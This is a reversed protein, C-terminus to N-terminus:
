ISYDIVIEKKFGRDILLNMPKNAWNLEAHPITLLTIKKSNQMPSIPPKRIKTFWGQSLCILLDNM